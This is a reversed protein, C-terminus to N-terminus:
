IGASAMQGPLFLSTRRRRKFHIHHSTATRDSKISHSQVDSLNDLGVKTIRKWISRRREMRISNSARARTKATVSGTPTRTLTAGRVQHNRRYRQRMGIEAGGNSYLLAPAGVGLLSSRMNAWRRRAPGWPSWLQTSVCEIRYSNEDAPTAAGEIMPPCSIFSLIALWFGCPALSGRVPLPLKVGPLRLLLRLPM